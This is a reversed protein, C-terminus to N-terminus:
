AVPSDRGGVRQELHLDRDIADTILITILLDEQGVLPEIQDVRERRERDARRIDIVEVVRRARELDALLGIEDHEVPVYERRVGARDAVRLDDQRKKAALRNERIGRELASAAERRM